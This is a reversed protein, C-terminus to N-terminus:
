ADEKDRQQDNNEVAKEQQFARSLRASQFQGCTTNRRQDAETGTM